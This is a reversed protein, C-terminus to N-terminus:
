ILLFELFTSKLQLPVVCHGEIFGLFQPALLLFLELLHRLLITEHVLHHNIWIVGKHVLDFVVRILCELLQVLM